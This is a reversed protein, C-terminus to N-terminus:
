SPPAKGPWAAIHVKNGNAYARASLQAHKPANYHVKVNDMSYGSLNEIGTKLQDPLGTKNLPVGESCAGGKLDRSLQKPPEATPVGQVAEIEPATALTVTQIRGVQEAEM